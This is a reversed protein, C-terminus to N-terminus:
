NAADPPVFPVLLPMAAVGDDRLAQAEDPTAQGHILAPPTKGDHMARAARAFDGGVWTSQPLMDAQKRAIASLLAHMVEASPAGDGHGGTLMVPQDSPGPRRAPPTSRQNGKATLRPAMVAKAVDSGGCVPCMLLGATQQAAFGESNNFWAEFRHGCGQCALDFLIM